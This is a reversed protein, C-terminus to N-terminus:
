LELIDGKRAVKFGLKNVHKSQKSESNLLPNTHNLHIFHIKSKEEKSLESFTAISEIVFPHPIEAIDRYGIEEADYFAADLFAYDVKRVEDVISQQWTDWKNIDPIFIATKNPGIIRYGVTESYEDRHPVLFPEIKVNTSLAISSDAKIMKLDINRLKVLQNWPGNKKLFNKMKPMAFVPTQSAGLAERGLYMLGTYHGIHAHTLFIGDPTSKDSFGALQHLQNIQVPMDPTAEILWSKGEKPDVVGLAVVMRNPNPNTFLVKCCDRNCGIHPSGADQVNGLVVLYPQDTPKNAQPPKDCSLIFFFTFLYFIAQKM